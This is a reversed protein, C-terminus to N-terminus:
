AQKDQLFRGLRIEPLTSSPVALLLIEYLSQHLSNPMGHAIMKSLAERGEFVQQAKESSQWAEVEKCFHM